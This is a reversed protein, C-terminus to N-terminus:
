PLPLRELKELAAATGIEELAWRASERITQDPDTLLGSLAEIAPEVKRVGLILAANRLLGSRKARSQAKGKLDRRFQAPDASLWGMLDPMSWREDSALEPHRTEPSKRNWPCVDQCIDCGFAWGHLERAMPEPIMGRHEITWYSICKRADLQYPAVFADTPCADLCRTCTGCHDLQFPLDPQLDLDLLLAGLVTFSGLKRGILMTNKGIWGLGALRAFDRELLPATDAVARGRTLPIEHQIWTLLQGLRDWLFDHYDAGQAYRASRGETATPERIPKTGYVVSAIVVSRVEALISDPHERAAAHREMYTMGAHRGADLWALFNPYDPPTVATAIGVDDFGLRRAESKLRDNFDAPIM